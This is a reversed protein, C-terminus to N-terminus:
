ITKNGTQATWKEKVGDVWVESGTTLGKQWGTGYFEKYVTGEPATMVCANGAVVFHTTVQAPVSNIGTWNSASVNSDTLRPVDDTPADYTFALQSRQVDDFSKRTIASVQLTNTYDFYFTSGDASLSVQSIVPIM